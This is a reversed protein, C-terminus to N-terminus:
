QPGILEILKRCINLGLGIGEKNMHMENDFTTYTQKQQIKELIEPKMGLGTDKM